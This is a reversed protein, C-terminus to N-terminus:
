EAREVFLRVLSTMEAAENLGTVTLTFNQDAKLSFVSEEETEENSCFYYFHGSGFRKTLESVEPIQKYVAKIPELSDDPQILAVEISDPATVGESIVLYIRCKELDRDLSFTFHCEGAEMSWNSIDFKLPDAPMGQFIIDNALESRYRAAVPSVAVSVAAVLLLVAVITMAVIRKNRM